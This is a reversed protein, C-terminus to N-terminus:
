GAPNNKAFFGDKIKSRRKIINVLDGIFNRINHCNRDRYYKGLKSINIIIRIRIDPIFGFFYAYSFSKKL